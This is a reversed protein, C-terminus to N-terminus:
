STLLALAAAEDEASVTVATTGSAEAEAQQEADQQQELMLLVRGAERKIVSPECELEQAATSIYNQRHRAHYMDLTDVHFLGSTEDRVQVNVKMVDPVPSKKMGRIRWVRPGSKMLLEGCATRECPVPTVPSEPRAALSAPQPESVSQPPETAGSTVPREHQFVAGPATGQGLWVAQQLALGLAHEANGSKLAYDNADMGPPFQVRWAEIGAELLDAA